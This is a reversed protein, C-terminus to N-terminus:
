YALSIFLILIFYLADAQEPEMTHRIMVVAVITNECMAVFINEMKTNKTNRSSM